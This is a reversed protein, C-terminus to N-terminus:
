GSIYTTDNFIPLSFLFCKAEAGVQEINRLSCLRPLFKLQLCEDSFVEMRFWPPPSFAHM